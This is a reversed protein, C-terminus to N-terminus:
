LYLINKRMKKKKKKKKKIITFWRCITIKLDSKRQCFKKKSHFFDISYMKFNELFDSKKCIQETFLNVVM